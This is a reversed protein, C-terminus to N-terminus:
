VARLQFVEVQVGDSFAVHEPPGSMPLGIADTLTQELTLIRASRVPYPTHYVRGSVLKGPGASAFLIYREVLWHEFTGPIAQGSTLERGVDGEGLLAGVEIEANCCAGAKGPWLRHSAYRVNNGQRELSMTARHYPLHWGWRAARVALSKSAELSFFWVGPQEGRRHVYTRLNTECFWSVGPVAPSWWPRIWSMYFPVVGLWASGDWTDVTLEPPLLAQVDAVPVRWHAFLLNTWVQYGAVPQAPRRTPTLRDIQFDSPLSM